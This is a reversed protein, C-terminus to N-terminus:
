SVHHVYNLLQALAWLFIIQLELYFGDALASPWRGRFLSTPVGCAPEPGTRLSLRAAPSVSVEMQM